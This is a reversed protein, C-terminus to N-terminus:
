QENEPSAKAAIEERANARQQRAVDEAAKRLAVEALKKAFAAPKMESANTQLGIHRHVHKAEIPERSTSICGAITEWARLRKAFEDANRATIRPMGIFMTAFILCETIGSLRRSDEDDGRRPYTYDEGERATVDAINWHLAM